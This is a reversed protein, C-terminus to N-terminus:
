KIISNLILKNTKIMNNLNINTFTKKLKVIKLFYDVSNEISINSLDLNKKLIKKKPKTFKGLSDFTNRPFYEFITNDNYKIMGNNFYFKFERDYITSYSLFINANFKKNIILNILVSDFLKKNNTSYLNVNKIEVLRFLNVMMNIYHIGLNGFINEYINNNNFRRKKNIKRFFLGHSSIISINVLDGYKKQKLCKVIQNYFSSQIYNFNFYIKNKEENKFKKLQNIDKISCVGPKECFIYRNKSKFYKLYNFHSKSASAIFIIQCDILDDINKTFTTSKSNFKNQIKQKYVYVKVFFEKKSILIKLIKKSQQGFGIIGVTKKLM